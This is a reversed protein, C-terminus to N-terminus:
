SHHTVASSLPKRRPMSVWRSSPLRVQSSYVDPCHEYLVWLEPASWFGCSVLESFGPFFIDAKYCGPHLAPSVLREVLDRYLKSMGAHHVGIGRWLAKYVWGPASPKKRRTMKRLDEMLDDKPYASPAAFSFQPSPDDPDFTSEWSRDETRQSEAKEAKQLRALARAREKEGFQWAEFRAIKRAWEPSSERWQSEALTLQDLLYKAIEACRNRDFNFLLAPQWLIRAPLYSHVVRM